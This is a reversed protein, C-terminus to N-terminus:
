ENNANQKYEWKYKGATKSEGSLCNMISTRLISNEKADIAISAYEMKVGNADIRYIPVYRYPRPKGSLTESIKKAVEKNFDYVRHCSICLQMFNDIDFDYECGKKLAWNYNLGEKHCIECKNAKGYKKKVWVHVNTYRNYGVRELATKYQKELTM